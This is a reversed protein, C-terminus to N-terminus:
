SWTEEPKSCRPLFCNQLKGTRRDLNGRIGSIDHSFDGPDFDALAELDLPCDNCHVAAIDMALLEIDFGLEQAREVIRLIKASEERTTKWNLTTM